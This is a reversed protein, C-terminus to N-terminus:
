PPVSVVEIEKGDAAEVDVSDKERLKVRAVSLVVRPGFM